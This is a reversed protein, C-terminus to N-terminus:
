ALVSLIKQRLTDISASDKVNFPLIPTLPSHPGEGLCRRIVEIHSKLLLASTKDSKTLVVTFPLRHSRLFDMLQLDTKQPPHRSDLLAFTQMLCSRKELYYPIISGWMKQTEKSVAAYGYGPMDVFVFRSALNFFNIQATKGPKKSVHALNKRNLLANILSSKGVNSRGTFAIEPLVEPPFDAEKVAGRIFHCELPFAGQGMM